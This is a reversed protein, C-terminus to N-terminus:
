HRVTRSQWEIHSQVLVEGLQKCADPQLSARFKLASGFLLSLVVRQGDSSLATAFGTLERVVGVFKTGAPDIQDAPAGRKERAADSLALLNMVIDGVAEHPCSFRYERGDQSSFSFNISDGDAAIGVRGM